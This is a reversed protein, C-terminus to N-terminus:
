YHSPGKKPRDSLVIAYTRASNHHRHLTSQMGTQALSPMYYLKPRHGPVQLGEDFCAFIRHM